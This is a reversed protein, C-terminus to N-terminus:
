FRRHLYNSTQYEEMRRRLGLYACIVILLSLWLSASALGHLNHLASKVAHSLHGENIKLTRGLADDYKSFQYNSGNREYGLSLKVAEQHAGSRELQRMKGDIACYDGLAQLAELAAQGEGDFRVNNLEDALSGSFGPLNFKENNEMQRQAITVTQALDHGDAFSAVTAISDFFHKQHADAQERDLLWRSEAANADYSNSRADLLAVVSNYSDEKAVTLERSSAALAATLHQLFVAATVLAILVPLNLRRRFRASLYIQTYLLLCLLLLGLVMVLGRSLASAGKERAYTDELVDANAKALADANPLLKEQLTQLAARYGKVADAQAGSDHRDRAAQAQMEFQGLAIQINEMPLQEAAGYTINKAAAVLQKCVDVRSKEFDDAIEQAERQGPAYLLEDALDADMTEVGIKIRHAAIVSPAANFGVTELAHEHQRVTIVAVVCFSIAGLCVGVLLLRLRAPTANQLVSEVVQQVPGVKTPM